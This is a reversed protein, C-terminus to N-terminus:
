VLSPRNTMIIDCKVQKDAKESKPLNFVNRNFLMAGTSKYVICRIVDSKMPWDDAVFTYTYFM